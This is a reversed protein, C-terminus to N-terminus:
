PAVSAPDPVKVRLFTVLGAGMLLASLYFPAGPLYIAADQASFVAFVGTSVLPALIMALASVSTLAGQLEGQANDDVARSMIGILAPTIVGALAAIPTLALLVAGSAVAGILVFAVVDLVHGYIVTGREGLFRIAPRILGGQVIAFSIGFLGLSLGIM